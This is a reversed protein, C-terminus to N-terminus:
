QQVDKSLVLVQLSCTKSELHFPRPQALLRTGKPYDSDYAALTYDGAPLGDFIFHGNQDTETFRTMAGSKLEIVANAVLPRIDEMHAPNLGVRYQANTTAIGDIRTSEEPHEKYFYLYALDEGADSLRRTRTCSDTAISDSTEQDDSAYVLYTEGAQFSIGCDGFPTWM